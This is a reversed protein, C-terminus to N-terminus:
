HVEYTCLSRKMKICFKEEEHLEKMEEWKLCSVLEASPVHLNRPLHGLVRRM